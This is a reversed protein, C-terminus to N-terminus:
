VNFGIFSAAFWFENLNIIARFIDTSHELCPCFGMANMHLVDLWAFWLPVSADLTVIAGNAM